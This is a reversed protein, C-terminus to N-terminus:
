RATCQELNGGTRCGFVPFSVRGVAQRIDKEPPQHAPHHTSNRTRPVVGTKGISNSQRHTSHLDRNEAPPLEMCCCWLNKPLSGTLKIWRRCSFNMSPYMDETTVESNDLRGIEKSYNEFVGREILGNIIAPSAHTQELAAGKAISGPLNPYVVSLEILSWPFYRWNSKARNTWTLYKRLNEEAAPM